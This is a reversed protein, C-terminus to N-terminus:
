HFTEQRSPQVSIVAAILSLSAARPHTMRRCPSLLLNINPELTIQKLALSKFLPYWSQSPWDPVLIIGKAQERIIKSLSRAILAFPPFAYFFYQSWDATFADVDIAQADPFRSFYRNCKANRANAFLDVEPEGLVEVIFCFAENCLEWETDLNSVRSLADAESNDSSSIYSAFLFINREEAWQWIDRALKNYKSHRVGGMKNIYSIATTNDVRLLIQSNDPINPLKKIAFLVTLLEKYNIHLQSQESSWFGWISNVGDTAGWGTNSADTYITMDFRYSRIFGVGDVVSKTWWALDSQVFKPIGVRSSYEFSNIVLSFTKFYELNKTYLWGYNIAVCSSILKGILKALELISCHSKTQFETLLELLKDRKERPLEITFDRSNIVFGLFKCLQSPIHNCKSENIVLGLSTFLECATDAHSNCTERDNAIFIMDDLYIVSLVGRSRLLQVPPKMIKTFVYPATCLGFPLCTFQYTIGNYCFRLYKRSTKHISIMFFADQLDITRMFCDPSLLHTLSRLDELKFHETQVYHNLNKLNLIFRDTNGKKPILFFSSLFQDHSPKCAEIAGKERLIDIANSYRIRDVAAINTGVYASQRPKSTFPIKYGRITDRVFENRTIALWKDVFM